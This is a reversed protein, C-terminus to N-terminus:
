GRFHSMFPVVLLGWDLGAYWALEGSIPCKRVGLAKSGLPMSCLGGGWFLAQRCFRWPRGKKFFSLPDVMLLPTIVVKGSNLGTRSALCRYGDLGSGIMGVIGDDWSQGSNGVQNSSKVM